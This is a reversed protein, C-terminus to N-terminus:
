VSQALGILPTSAAFSIFARPASLGWQPVFLVAAIGMALIWASFFGATTVVIRQGRHAAAARAVPLVRDASRGPNRGRAAASVASRIGAVGFRRDRDGSSCHRRRRYDRADMRNRSAAAGA